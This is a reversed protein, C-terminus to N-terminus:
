VSDIIAIARPKADQLVLPADILRVPTGNKLWHEHCISITASVLALMFREPDGWTVANRLAAVAQEGVTESVVFVGNIPKAFADIAELRPDRPAVHAEISLDGEMACASPAPTAMYDGAVGPLRGLREGSNTM